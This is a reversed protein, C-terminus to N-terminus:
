LLIPCLGQALRLGPRVMRVPAEPVYSINGGFSEATAQPVPSWGLLLHGPAEESLVTSNLIGAVPTQGDPHQIRTM